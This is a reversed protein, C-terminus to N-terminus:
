NVVFVEAHRVMASLIRKDDSDEVDAPCGWVDSVLTLVADGDEHDGADVPFVRVDYGQDIPFCQAQAEIGNITASFHPLKDGYFKGVRIVVSSLNMPSCPLRMSGADRMWRFYRNEADRELHNWGDFFADSNASIVHRRQIPKAGPASKAEKDIEAVIEAKLLAPQVTVSANTAPLDDLDGPKESGSLRDM